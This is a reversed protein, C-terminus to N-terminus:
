TKFEANGASHLYLHKKFVQPVAPPTRLCFGFLLCMAQPLNTIEEMVISGELIIGLRSPKLQLSETQLEITMM